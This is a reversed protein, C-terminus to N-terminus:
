ATRHWCYAAQSAQMVNFDTRASPTGLNSVSGGSVTHTHAPLKHTHQVSESSTSKNSSSEAYSVATTAATTSARKYNVYGVTHSHSSNASMNGTADGGGGTVSPQTFGHGHAINADAIRKANAGYTQEALYTTGASILAQGEPILEWTGGIIDNPDWDADSTWVYKGVPYILDLLATMLGANDSFSARMACEFGENEAVQGFAIGRGGALIDMTRFSAPVVLSIESGTHYADSVTLSLVHRTLNAPVWAHVETTASPKWGPLTIASTKAADTYWIPTVSSGNDQLAIADLSNAAFNSWSTNLVLHLWSGEAAPATGGDSTVREAALSYSLPIAGVFVNGNTATSAYEQLYASSGTLWIGKVTNKFM